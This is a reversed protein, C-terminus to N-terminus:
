ADKLDEGSTKGEGLLQTIIAAVEAGSHWHCVEATLEAAKGNRNQFSFGSRLKEIRKHLGFSTHPPSPPARCLVADGAHLECAPCFDGGGDGVYIIQTQPSLGSRIRELVGGKCLNSPCLPCEHPPGEHYPRVHLCGESDFDAPNTIVETFLDRIGHHSLFAEIFITNADSLVMQQAGSTGANRVAALCGDSIPVKAVCDIISERSIGKEFLGEMLWDMLATWGPPGGPRDRNDFRVMLDPCLQEVVFTDSNTDILSWDYDWIILTPRSQLKSGDTDVM